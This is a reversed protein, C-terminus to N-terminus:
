SKKEIQTDILSKIRQHEMNRRMVEQGLVTNIRDFIKFQIEPDEDIESHTQTTLENDVKTMNKNKAINPGDNFFMDEDSIFNMNEVVNQPIIDNDFGISDLTVMLDIKRYGHEVSNLKKAVNVITDGGMGHGVMIVPQNLPRKKIEEILRDESDWDFVEATPINRAMGTLGLDDSAFPNISFGTVFMIAPRDLTTSMKQIKGAKEVKGGGLDPLPVNSLGPTADFARKLTSVGESLLRSGASKSEKVKNEIKKPIEKVKDKLDKAKQKAEDSLEVKSDPGPGKDGNVGKSAEKLGKAAKNALGPTKNLYDNKSAYHIVGSDSKM